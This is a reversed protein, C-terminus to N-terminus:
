IKLTPQFMYFCVFFIQCRVMRQQGFHGGFTLFTTSQTKNQGVWCYGGPSIKKCYMAKHDWNTQVLYPLLMKYVRQAMPGWLQGFDGFHGMESRQCGNQDVNQLIETHTLKWFHEGQHARESWAIRPPTHPPSPTRGCVSLWISSMVSHCSSRATTLRSWFCLKGAYSKFWQVPSMHVVEFQNTISGCLHFKKGVNDKELQWIKWSENEALRKWLVPCVHKCNKHERERQQLRPYPAAPYLFMPTSPNPFRHPHMPRWLRCPATPPSPGVARRAEVSWSSVESLWWPLTTPHCGRGSRRWGTNWRPHCSSAQWLWYTNRLFWHCCSSFHLSPTNHSCFTWMTSYIAVSFMTCCLTM